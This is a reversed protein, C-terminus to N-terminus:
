LHPFCFDGSFPVRLTVSKEGKGRTLDNSPHRREQKM